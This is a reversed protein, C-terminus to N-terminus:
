SVLIMVAICISFDSTHAIDSLRDNQVVTARLHAPLGQVFSPMKEKV